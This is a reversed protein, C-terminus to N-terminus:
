VQLWPVAGSPNNANITCCFGDTPTGPYTGFDSMPPASRPLKWLHIHADIITGGTSCQPDASLPQSVSGVLGAGVASAGLTGMWNRRTINNNKMSVEMEERM